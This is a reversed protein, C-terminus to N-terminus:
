ISLIENYYETIIDAKKDWTMESYVFTKARQGIEAARDSNRYVWELKSIFNEITSQYDGHVVPVKIVCDDPFADQGGVDFCLSPCGLASAELVAMSGSDRFAPYVFLNAFELIKLLDLRPMFDIVEVFNSLSYQNIWGLTKLKEDKNRIGILQVKIKTKDIKIKELAELFLHLGKWDLARGAYIIIFDDGKIKNEKIDFDKIDIGISPLVHFIAKKNELKPSLRLQNEKASFIYCKKTDILRNFFRIINIDSGKRRFKERKLTKYELEGDFTTDILEAGGIPGIVFPKNIFYGFSITRYQNFTIHHILDVSHNKIWKKAVGISLLNWLMYYVQVGIIKKIWILSKPLDYYIFNLNEIPNEDLYKEINKKNNLRTIVTVNHKKSLAVSLNWGVGPESGKLPECAYASILINM